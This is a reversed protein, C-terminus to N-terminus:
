PTTPDEAFAKYLSVAWERPSIIELLRDANPSNATLLRAVYRSECDDTAPPKQTRTYTQHWNYRLATHRRSLRHGPVTVDSRVRRDAESDRAPRRHRDSASRHVVSFHWICASVLTTFFCKHKEQKEINKNQLGHLSRICQTGFFVPGGFEHRYSQWIKISKWLEKMTLSLSLNATFRYSFIRGCRLSTAVSGQSINVDSFLHCDSYSPM